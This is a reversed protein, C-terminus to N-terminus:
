GFGSIKEIKENEKSELITDYLVAFDIFQCKSNEEDIVILWRRQAEIVHNWYVLFDWINHSDNEGMAEPQYIIM